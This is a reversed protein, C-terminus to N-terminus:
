KLEIVGWLGDKKVWCCGQYVPRIEQFTGPLIVIDGMKDRLEWIGDKCLPVYGESFAYCYKQMEGQFGLYKLWSADYEIPIIIEGRENVYGWKGDQKVACMGDSESGCEDYIFDTVLRGGGYIAYPAMGGVPWGSEASLRRESQQVPIVGAVDQANWGSDEEEATSHLANEFYYLCAAKGTGDPTVSLLNDSELGEWIWEETAEDYKSLTYEYVPDSYVGSYLLETKMDGDMSILGKGNEKEIVAYSSMWQKQNANMSSGQFDSARVYYIDDAEIEPQVKWTYNDTKDEPYDSLKAERRTEEISQSVDKILEKIVFAGAVLIVIGAIIGVAAMKRRSKKKQRRNGRDTNKRREAEAEEIQLCHM